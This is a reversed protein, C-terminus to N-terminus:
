YKRYIGKVGIRTYNGTNYGAIYERDSEWKEIANKFKVQYKRQSIFFDLYSIIESRTLVNNDVLLALIKRRSAATLNEQQSVTYGYQMLISEQALQMGNTYTNGRLYAKEDSVRCILTGKKKLNQFTSEMIFFVNCKPCYGASAKETKVDGRKDIINIVAEINQLQHNQHMCKFTTRRVVFDKVRITNDHQYTKDKSKDMSTQSVKEHTHEDMLRQNVSTSANCDVELQARQNEEQQRKLQKEKQFREREERKAKQEARRKAREEQRVRIEEKCIPLKDENLLIWDEKHAMYSTYDIYYVDCEFCYKVNYKGTKKKRTKFQIKQKDLNGQCISCIHCKPIGYVYCRSGNIIPHPQKIYRHYRAIDGSHLINIYRKEDLRISSLDKYQALSTYLCKCERCEYMPFVFSKKKGKVVAKKEDIKTLVCLDKPCHIFKEEKKKARVETNEKTKDIYGQNNVVTKQEKTNDENIFDSIIEEYKLERFAQIPISEANNIETGKKQFFQIAKDEILNKNKLINFYKYDSVYLDILSIHKYKQNEFDVMLYEKLNFDTNKETGM